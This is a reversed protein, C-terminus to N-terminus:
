RKDAALKALLAEAENEADDIGTGAAPTSAAKAWVIDGNLHIEARGAALPEADRSWRMADTLKDFEAVVRQGAPGSITAVYKPAEADTM